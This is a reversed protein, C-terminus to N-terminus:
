NKKGLFSNATDMMGGLKDMDFKGMMKHAEDLMPVMSEISQFLKQQQDMLEKTDNTLGELGKNGVMKHLKDYSNALNQGADLHAGKPSLTVKGNSNKSTKSSGSTMSETAGVVNNVETTGEDSELPLTTPTTADEESVEPDMKVPTKDKKDKSDANEMGERFKNKVISLFPTLILACLLVVSVNKSVFTTILAVVLFFVISTTDNKALYTVINFFTLIYIIYLFYNNAIVKNVTKKIKDM